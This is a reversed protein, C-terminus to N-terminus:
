QPCTFCEKINPHINSEIRVIHVHYNFAVKRIHPTVIANEFLM